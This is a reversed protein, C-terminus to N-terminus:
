VCLYENYRSSHMATLFNRRNRVICVEYESYLPKGTEVDYFRPDQSSCVCTQLIALEDALALRCATSVHSLKTIYRSMQRTVNWPCVVPSDLLVSTIKLRCAHADPHGDSTLRGLAQFIMNEEPSYETDSAITNALRYVEVYNRASFRMLLLYLASSLTPTFLFSLSVHVPYVFYFTDLVQYWEVKLNRDLVLETSFPNSGIRPRVPNVIPVLIHLEGDVTSLLLSQPVGRMLTSILDSRYNSVFLNSHDVSYLRKVGNEDMKEHFSLKLRPLELLDISIDDMSSSDVFAPAPPNIKRDDVIKGVSNVDELGQFLRKTSSWCLIHGINDLRTMTLLINGLRSNPDAYSASILTLDDLISTEQLIIENAPLQDDAFAKLEVLLESIEM